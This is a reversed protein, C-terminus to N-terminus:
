RKCAKCYAYKECVSIGYTGDIHRNYCEEDYFPKGCTKCVIYYKPTFCKGFFRRQITKCNICVLKCDKRHNLPSFYCRNCYDCYNRTALYSNIFRIPQYHKDMFSYSLYLPTRSVDKHHNEWIPEINGEDNFCM